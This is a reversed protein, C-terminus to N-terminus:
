RSPAPEMGEPADARDRFLQWGVWAAMLDIAAHLVIAPWLSHSLAVIATMVAGLLACKIMGAVGQYVHALTFIALSLSAAIWWGTFPQFLWIVFGRCLLEECFGASLAAVGFLPIESASHAIVDGTTGMRERLKTRDPLRGIKLGARFQAMALAATLALPVWLRWGTAAGLGLASAPLGQAVWLAMVLASNGWLMLIWQTWLIRRAKAADVQVRREFGRWFVLHDAALALCFVAFVLWQYQM